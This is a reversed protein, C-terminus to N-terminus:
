LREWLRGEREVEDEEENLFDRRSLIGVLKGNEVIPIHRHGNEHMRRLAEIALEDPSITEPDKTMVDRLLTTNPDLGKAVVRSVLDTGTFIGELRGRGVVLVSRVNRKTMGVTAERVTATGPLKLLKQKQVVDPIIRRVM